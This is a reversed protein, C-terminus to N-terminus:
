KQKFGWYAMQGIQSKDVQVHYEIGTYCDCYDCSTERVGIIKIKLPIIGESKLFTELANISKRNSSENAWFPLCNMEQYIMWRGNTTKSCSPVLTLFLLSIGIIHISQRM